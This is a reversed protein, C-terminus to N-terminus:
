KVVWIVMIDQVPAKPDNTILKIIRKYQGPNLQTTNIEMSISGKKGGKLQKPATTKLDKAVTYVRRIALPNSGVNKIQLLKKVKKNAPIEGLDIQHAIEVIPAQAIQEPTLGSFDEVVNAKLL